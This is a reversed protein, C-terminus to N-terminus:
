PVVIPPIGPLTITDVVVDEGSIVDEGPLKLLAEVFQPNRLAVGDYFQRRARVADICSQGSWGLLKHLTLAVVLGSRNIGAMCTVLITKEQRYLEQLRTATSVAIALQAKTMPYIPDDENPSHIVEVGPFYVSSPQYEQACFVAVDFGADALRSGTPPKSGQWLRPVIEHAEVMYAHM